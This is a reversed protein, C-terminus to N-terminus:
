DSLWTLSKTSGLVTAQWAGRDMSNELCSVPIPRWKRKWPIKGAWPDFWPDGASCASEKGDSGGPFGSVLYLKSSSSSSFLYWFSLLNLCQHTGLFSNLIRRWNIWHATLFCPYLFGTACGWLSGLFAELYWLGGYGAHHPCVPFVQAKARPSPTAEFGGKPRLTTHLSAVHKGCAQSNCVQPLLKSMGGVKRRDLFPSPVHFYPFLACGSLSQLWSSLCHFLWRPWLWLLCVPPPVSWCVHACGSSCPRPVARKWGSM